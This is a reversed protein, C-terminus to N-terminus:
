FSEPCVLSHLKKVKEKVIQYDEVKEVLGKFVKFGYLSGFMSGVLFGISDTDGGVQGYSNVALNLGERPRELNKLFIFLSLPLSQFVYTGNGLNRIAEELSAGEKLLKELNEFIKKSEGLELNSKLYKLLEQREKPLDFDENLLSCLLLTYIKTAEEMERSRHTLGVMLKAGEVAVEPEKFHFLSVMVSRLIGEVSYARIGFRSPDLGVSLYSLSTLLIPDPSRHTEEREYWDILRNLFDYPDLRKRELLSDLLILVIQSEGSYEEPLQGYAPSKPHPPYFGKPEKSYFKLVEERSVEEVGKGLADGLIGGLVAGLFKDQTM